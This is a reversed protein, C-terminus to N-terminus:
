FRLRRRLKVVELVDVFRNWLFEVKKTPFLEPGKFKADAKSIFDKPRIALSAMLSSLYLLISNIIGKWFCFIVVIIGIILIIHDIPFILNNIM